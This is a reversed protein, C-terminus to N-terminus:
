PWMECLGRIARADLRTFPLPDNRPVYATEDLYIRTVRRCLRSDLELADLVREWEECDQLQLRRLAPFADLFWAIDFVIREYFPMGVICVDAVASFRVEGDESIWALFDAWARSAPAWRDLVLSRARPTYLADFFSACPHEISAGDQVDRAARLGRLNLHLVSGRPRESVAQPTYARMAPIQLDEISLVTPADLFWRNIQGDREVFEPVQRGNACVRLFLPKELPARGITVGALRLQNLTPHHAPIVLVIPPTPAVRTPIPFEPSRLQSGSFKSHPPDVVEANLSQLAEYREMRFASAILQWMRWQAYVTLHWTRALHPRVLHVLRRLPACEYIDTNDRASSIDGFDLTLHLESGRSRRLVDKLLDIRQADSDGSRVRIRAWFEAYALAAARWRRCVRSLAIIDAYSNTGDRIKAARFIQALLEVPFIQLGKHSTTIQDM